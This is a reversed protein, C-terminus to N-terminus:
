LISRSGDTTTTPAMSQQGDFLSRKDSFLKPNRLREAYGLVSGACLWTIPILTDNLLM